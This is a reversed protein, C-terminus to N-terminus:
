KKQTNFMEELSEYIYYIEDDTFEINISEEFIKTASKLKDILDNDFKKQKKYELGKGLVMRELVCGTHVMLQTRNINSFKFDLKKELINVFENLSGIIKRPNLYTLFEELTEQSIQMAVSYTNTKFIELNNADIHKILEQEGEGAIFEHLAIFPVGINPNKIGIVSIIHFNEKIHNIEDYMDMLGVPIVEIKTHTINSITNEVLQKLKYAAGKGSTCLTIIAKPKDNMYTTDDLGSHKYGRFRSLIQYADELEINPSESKRIAELVMPTSVMDITRVKIGTREQIINEFELLSGMDVLLLVGKGDDLNQVKELVMNLTDSVKAELPMDVSDILGGGLLKKSVNVMGSAIGDGHCVVLIGIKKSSKEQISMLLLTLYSIEMDPVKINYREEIKNKIKTAMKYEKDHNKIINRIDPHDVLEDNHVKKLLTSLHLSFAYIFREYCDLELGQMVTVSLEEAFELVDKGVIKKVRDRALDNAAVKKSLTKLHCEIDKMIYEQIFEENEGERKLMNVKYEITEYLDFDLEYNDEEVKIVNYDEPMITMQYNIADDIKMEDSKNRRMSYFGNKIDTPLDKFQITLPEITDISNLFAKACVLQINSKLQGINGYSTSGILAKASERDIKIPKNIRHAETAILTKLLEIKEKTTRESFPPLNIIIPIRRIFTSLLASSPEATTAGIILVQARRNRETEGLKSYRGTDMFYFLMEQGEPPLRHIEDLFLIGGNAKEILGPKEKDAGTFAGKIYGFLHSMLLQPNNYYDACNFIIFPADASIRKTYRAYECMTNAFMSKGVGTEGIILSYLGNPPYLIAAKAKEIQAKLSGDHGIIKKFPDVTKKDILQNIDNVEIPGEKLDKKLIRELVERPIYHVPRGTVKIMKGEKFLNNLEFSVNNRLIGLEKSVELATIGYKEKLDELTYNKLTEVCFNYIKDIRKIKRVRELSYFTKINIIAIFFLIKLKVINGM